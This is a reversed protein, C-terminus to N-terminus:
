HVARDEDRWFDARVLKKDIKGVATRPLQDRFLVLKPAKVSGLAKKAHATVLPKDQWGPVAPVIVACVAEGWREDPVGIVTCEAVEPLALLAAEVEAPYVNFGGTIIMDKMRDVVYVYGDADLYGVDGTHHWGHERVRATEEPNNLYGPTVLRGRAVLEGRQGAPLINGAPDMAAVRSSFTPRGCSGLREPRDGAAAAAVVEPTLYTLVFPSEAQGWSQALCPGFVEVGQAFRDPSVPAASLLIMQLSSTDRPQQRQRTLLDYYATPPLFLHSIRHAEIQALADDADFGPRIVVTGGRSAFIVAMVGAAHTIPAVMLNMVHENDPWHRTATEILTAWVQGTWAVAKSKGTTGGTPWACCLDDPNGYPDGRDALLRGAGAKIVEALPTAGAFDRDLCIIERLTPVEERILEAADAFSSHLLLWSCGVENMFDISAQVTNRFNLPVWAGDARWLALMALFGEAVNPALVGVRDGARLGRACLGQALAVSHEAAARYTVEGADSVILSRDPVAAAAQDFFDIIRM